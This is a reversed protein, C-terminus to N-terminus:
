YVASAPDEETMLKAAQLHVTVKRYSSRDSKQLLIMLILEPGFCRDGLQYARDGM